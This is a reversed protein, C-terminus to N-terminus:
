QSEQITWTFTCHVATTGDTATVTVTYIGEADLDVTGSLLGTSPNLTVGPPLGTATFWHGGGESQASLQLSVPVTRHIARRAFHTAVQEATLTKDYVAVEDLVGNVHRNSASSRGIVIPAAGQAASQSFTGAGIVAGDVYFTV